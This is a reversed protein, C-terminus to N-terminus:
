EGDLAQGVFRLGGVEVACVGPVAILAASLREAAGGDLAAYTLEVRDTIIDFGAKKVARVLSDATTRREDLRVDVRADAFSASASEVGPLASLAREIRPVCAACEINSIRISITTM